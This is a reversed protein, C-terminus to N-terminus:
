AVSEQEAVDADSLEEDELDYDEPLTPVSPESVPKGMAITILDLLRQRRDNFFGDFDDAALREFDIHHQEVRLRIEDVTTEAELRIAPLYKSPARGGIKRNTAASIATKNVISERRLGDIKFDACWKKPFVHHIDVALSHHSAITIDQDYLWDKSGGKMLLAYIGKYAASNRTRLEEGIWSRTPCSSEPCQWRHKHWVLRSPRGFCPLDVLEVVPRDKVHAFM